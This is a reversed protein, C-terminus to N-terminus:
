YLNSKYRGWFTPDSPPPLLLLVRRLPGSVFSILWALHVASSFRDQLLAACQRAAVVTHFVDLAAVGVPSCAGFSGDRKRVHRRAGLEAPSNSLPLYPKELV